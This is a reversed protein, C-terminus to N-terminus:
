SVPLLSMPTITFSFHPRKLFTYHNLLIYLPVKPRVDGDIGGRSEFVSQLIFSSELLRLTGYPTTLLLHYHNGMICFAYLAIKNEEVATQLTEIFYEKDQDKSFIHEGSNGGRYSTIYREKM